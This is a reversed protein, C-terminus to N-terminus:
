HEILSDLDMTPPKKMGVIELITPAVNGLFGGEKLHIKIVDPNPSAIIFPVPNKTHETDPLGTEPNVKQEANGHDATIILTGNIESIKKWLETLSQDITEVATVTARIDGTHGVMDANAYNIVFFEVTGTQLKNLVAKTIEAAAMKPSQDYTSVKPSPILLRTELAVPAEIGGNFFYTVHAYKETEAVHFQRLGEAAFCDALSKQVPEPHFAVEVPLGAQYETFTVVSVKPPHAGQDLQKEKGGLARIIQRMRDARFNFCIVVDDDHLTTVKGDKDKILVPEIFEDITGATYTKSIAERASEVESGKGYAFVNYAKATRDWRNDRDMAFFRGILTTIRAHSRISRIYSELKDVFLLASTPETDRGDTFGDIVVKEVELIKAMQILAYLHNMHGHVSGDSLIGMLHVTSNNKKAKMMANVLVPNKFFQRNKIQEDILPLFQKVIKGAGINLHGVESNGMIGHPLGVAEAAAKLETHPMTRWLENMTPTKALSIANGGWAPAIGWGDLIVLVLPLHQFQSEAM